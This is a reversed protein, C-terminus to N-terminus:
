LFTLSRGEFTELLGELEKQSLWRGLGYESERLNERMRIVLM